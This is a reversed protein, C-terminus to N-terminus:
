GALPQTKERHRAARSPSDIMCWGPHDRALVCRMEDGGRPKVVRACRWAEEDEAMQNIDDYAM